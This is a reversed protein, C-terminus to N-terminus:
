IKPVAILSVKNKQNRFLYDISNCGYNRTMKQHNLFIYEKFAKLRSANEGHGNLEKSLMYIKYLAAMSLQEKGPDSITIKSKLLLSLNQESDKLDKGYLLQFNKQFCSFLIFVPKFNLEPFKRRLEDVYLLNSPDTIGITVTKNEIMLPLVRNKLADKWTFQFPLDQAESNEFAQPGLFMFPLHYLERVLKQLTKKTVMELSLLTSLLPTNTNKSKKEAIRVMKSPLVKNSSLFYDLPFLQDYKHLFCYNSIPDLLSLECLITGFLKKRGIGKSERSKKQHFLVIDIDDTKILGERVLREGIRKGYRPLIRDLM